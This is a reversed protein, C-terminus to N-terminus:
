VPTMAKLDEKLFEVTQHRSKSGPVDFLLIEYRELLGVQEMYRPNEELWRRLIVGHHEQRPENYDLAVVPQHIAFAFEHKMIDM